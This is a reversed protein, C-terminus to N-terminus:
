VHRQRQCKVDLRKRESACTIYIWLNHLNRRRENCRLINSNIPRSAVKTWRFQYYTDAITYSYLNIFESFPMPYLIRLQNLWSICIYTYVHSVYHNGYLYPDHKCYVSWFKYWCVNFKFVNRLIFRSHLMMKPLLRTYFYVKWNVSKQLM